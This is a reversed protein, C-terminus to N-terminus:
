LFMVPIFCRHIGLIFVGNMVSTHFLCKLNAMYILNSNYVKRFFTTKPSNVFESITDNKRYVHWGESIYIFSYFIFILQVRSVKIVFYIIIPM